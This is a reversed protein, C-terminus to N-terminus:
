RDREVNIKFNIKLPLGELSANGGMKEIFCFVM